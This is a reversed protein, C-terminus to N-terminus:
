GSTGAGGGVKGWGTGAQKKGGTRHTGNKPNRGAGGLQEPIGRLIKVRIYYM